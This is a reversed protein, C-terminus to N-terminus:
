LIFPIIYQNHMMIKNLAHYDLICLSGNRECLLYLTELLWQLQQIFRKLLNEEIYICLVELKWSIGQIHGYWAIFM